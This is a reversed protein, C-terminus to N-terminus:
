KRGQRRKLILEEYPLRGQTRLDYYHQVFVGFNKATLTWPLEPKSHSNYTYHIEVGENWAPSVYLREYQTSHWRSRSQPSHNHKTAELLLAYIKPTMPKVVEQIHGNYERLIDLAEDYTKCIHKNRVGRRPVIGFVFEGNWGALTFTAYSICKNYRKRLEGSNAFLVSMQELTMTPPHRKVILDVLEEETEPYRGHCNRIRGRHYGSDFEEHCQPQVCCHTCINKKVANLQTRSDVIKERTAAREVVFSFDHEDVTRLTKSFHKHSTLLPSIYVFPGIQSQRSKLLEVMEEPDSGEFDVALAQASAQRIACGKALSPNRVCEACGLILKQPLQCSYYTEHLDITEVPAGERCVVVAEGEKSCEMRVAVQELFETTALLIPYPGEEYPFVISNKGMIQQYLPSEVISHITATQFVDMRGAMSTFLLNTSRKDSSQAYTFVYDLEHIRPIKM